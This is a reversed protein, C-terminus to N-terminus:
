QALCASRTNICVDTQDRLVVTWFLTKQSRSVGNQLMGTLTIDKGAHILPDFGGVGKGPFAVGFRTPAIYKTENVGGCGDVSTPNNDGTVNIVIQNFRQWNDRRSDDREVECVIGSIRVPSAIRRTLWQNASSTVDQNPRRSADLDIPAPVAAPLIEDTAIFNPNAVQTMGNFKAIAGALRKLVRGKVLNGPPRGFTFVYISNYDTARSDSVAVGSQFVSSVVLAGDPRISRDFAVQRNLFPQCFSANDASLDLPRQILPITPSPFFIPPSAGIAQSPVDELNLTLRGFIAAATLPLSVTQTRGQLLRFEALLWDPSSGGSTSLCPNRLPLRSGGSVFYSQLNADVPFLQGMEDLADVSFRLVPPQVSKDPTGLENEMPGLLNLRLSTMRHDGPLDYQCATQPLAGGLLAALAFRSACSFRTTRASM